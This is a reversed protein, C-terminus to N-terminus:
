QQWRCVEEPLPLRFNLKSGKQLNYKKTVIQFNNPHHLGGKSLPQIHDVHYNPGLEERKKYILEIQQYEAETLIPSQKLKLARRKANRAAVKDPNDRKWKKNRIAVKERNKVHWKATYIAIKEKNNQYYETVSIKVKEKNNQYHEARRIALKEKNNERYEQARKCYCVKCAATLKFKGFKAKHFFEVTAEFEKGCKTCTKYEM